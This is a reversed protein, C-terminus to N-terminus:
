LVKTISRKLANVLTRTKRAQTETILAHPVKIIDRDTMAPIVRPAVSM